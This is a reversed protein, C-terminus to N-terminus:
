EILIRVGDGDDGVAEFVPGRTGAALAARIRDVNPGSLGPIGRLGLDGLSAPLRLNVVVRGRDTVEVRITRGGASADAAPEIRERTSRGASADDGTEDLAALIPEAEAASLRGEAVLRLVDGM